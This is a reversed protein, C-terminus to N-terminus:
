GRIWGVGTVLRMGLGRESFNELLSRPVLSVLLRVGLGLRLSSVRSLSMDHSWLLLCDFIATAMCSVRGPNRAQLSGTNSWQAILYFTRFMLCTKKYHQQEYLNGFLNIVRQVCDRHLEQDAGWEKRPSLRHQSFCGKVDMVDYVHARVNLTFICSM